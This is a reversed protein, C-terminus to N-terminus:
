KSRFDINKLKRAAHSSYELDLRFIMIDAFDHFSMIGVRFLTSLLFSTFYVDKSDSTLM